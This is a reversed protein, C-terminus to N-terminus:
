VGHRLLPDDCDSDLSSPGSALSSLFQSAPNCFYHLALLMSHCGPADLEKAAAVGLVVPKRCKWISTLVGNATTPNTIQFHRVKFVKGASFHYQAILETNTSFNKRSKLM